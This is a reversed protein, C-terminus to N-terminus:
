GQKPHVPRTRVAKYATAGESNTDRRALEVKYGREAGHLAEATDLKRISPRGVVYPM